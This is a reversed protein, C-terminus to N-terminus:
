QRSEVLRALDQDRQSLRTALDHTKEDALYILVEEDDPTHGTHAETRAIFDLALGADLPDLHTVGTDARITSRDAPTQAIPQPALRDVLRALLATQADLNLAIRSLDRAARRFLLAAAFRAFFRPARPM